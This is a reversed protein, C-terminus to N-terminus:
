NPLYAKIDRSCKYELVPPRSIQGDVFVAGAETSGYGDTLHVDLLSEVFEKMESSIPASGTM